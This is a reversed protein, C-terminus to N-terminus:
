IDESLGQFCKELNGIILCITFKMKITNKETPITASLKKIFKKLHTGLMARIEQFIFTAIATSNRDEKAKARGMEAICAMIVKLPHGIKRLTAQGM